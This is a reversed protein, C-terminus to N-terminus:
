YIELNRHYVFLYIYKVVTLLPAVIETVSVATANDEVDFRSIRRAAEHSM